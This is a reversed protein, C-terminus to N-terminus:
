STRVDASGRAKCFAILWCGDSPYEQCKTMRGARTLLRQIKKLELGKKNAPTRHWFKKREVRGAYGAIAKSPREVICGVM